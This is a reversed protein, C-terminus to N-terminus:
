LVFYDQKQLYVEDLGAKPNVWDGKWQTSPTKGWPYLPWPMFDIM